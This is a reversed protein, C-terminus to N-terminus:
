WLPKRVVSTVIMQQWKVKAQLTWLLRIKMSIIRTIEAQESSM